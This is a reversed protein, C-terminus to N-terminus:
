RKAYASRQLNEFQTVLTPLEEYKYDNLAKHLYGYKNLYENLRAWDIKGGPLEWGLEHVISLIKRRMKNAADNVQTFGYGKTKTATSQGSLIELHGILANCERVEMKASSTERGGTFEYVLEEKQEAGIALKGILLHLRKNQSETRLMTKYQKTNYQSTNVACM